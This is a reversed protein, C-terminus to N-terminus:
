KRSGLLFSRMTSLVAEPADQLIHHGAGPVVVTYSSAITTRLRDLANAPFADSEAGRIAITPCSVMEGPEWLSYDLTWGARTGPETTYGRYDVAPEILVLADIRHPARAALVAAANAGASAGALVFSGIELQDALGLVLSLDATSWGPDLPVEVVRWPPSAQEAFAQSGPYVDESPVLLVLPRGEHNENALYTVSRDQIQVTRPDL